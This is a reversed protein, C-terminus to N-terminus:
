GLYAKSVRQIMKSHQMSSGNPIATAVIQICHRFQRVRDHCCAAPLISDARTAARSTRVCRKRVDPVLGWVSNM